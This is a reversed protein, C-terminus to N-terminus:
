LKGLDHFLGVAEGFVKQNFKESFEGATKAVSELHKRLLHWEEKSKGKKSHAYFFMWKGKQFYFCWSPLTILFM